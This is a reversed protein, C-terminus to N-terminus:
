RKGKHKLCQKCTVGKWVECGAGGHKHLCRGCVSFGYTANSGKTLKHWVRKM